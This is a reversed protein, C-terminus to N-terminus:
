QNYMKEIADRYHELVRARKVKLTPTLLDNDVTWPKLLPTVRRIKAYGPFDHLADSIMRLLSNQLARDQLSAEDFPDLEHRQALSVWEEPNLVVLATLYSRGEGIILAQDFAPQLTIAAEMDAPPIKEGNSLVLIDKIRGTIHVFGQEDIRAKDGTHLWGDPEIIESTARHNNWYGLMIGPSKALLEDQEGIRLDVGPLALGVSAPQNHKHRNATLVPSTETMGYGQIVNIGLGIFTKAVTLPLAAGGSVAMQLRGGLRAQVKSAVLRNLLPWLLLVPSRRARGQNVEFRRWGVGVALKFLIRPLASRAWLQQQIRDYVREFIRPVSILVTPKIAQLDDALQQISRSYVVTAGCMMPVYYGCTREFTHSLPLFSLFVHQNRVNLAELSAEATALINYHSLM